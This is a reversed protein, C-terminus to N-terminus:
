YTAPRTTPMPYPVGPPPGAPPAPWAPPPVPPPATPRSAAAWSVRGTLQMMVALTLVAGVTIALGTFGQFFFTFSFLVLYVLQSLGMELLAFRWGVFLRGYTVVLLSSVGAALAFAPWLALHDVLYAFLLHFAFFACGFFFYNLPHISRGRALALVAVVFFFFLLGVPAFFTIRSALPGPSPRQPLEVGITQSAVLSQFDWEGRWGGPTRGHRSPSITGAPFNVADFDTEMALRFGRVQGAGNALEYDWRSTGRSRYAVDFVRQEGPALEARWAAVGKSVEAAVEHGAASRVEFGDYVAADGVLPFRFDVRRTTPTPNVFTYRARFDVGYTAFWMLGKRRHELGLKVAADTGAVPVDIEVDVDKVVETQTPQGYSDRGSV